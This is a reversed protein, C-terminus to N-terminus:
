AGSGRATRYPKTARCISQPTKTLLQPGDETTTATPDPNGPDTQGPHQATRRCLDPSTHRETWVTAVIISTEAALLAARRQDLEDSGPPSANGQGDKGKTKTRIVPQKGMSTARDGPDAKHWEAEGHSVLWQAKRDRVVVGGQSSSCSASGTCLSLDPRARRARRWVTATLVPFPRPAQIPRGRAQRPWEQRGDKAGGDGGFNSSTPVSPHEKRCLDAESSPTTLEKGTGDRMCCSPCGHM